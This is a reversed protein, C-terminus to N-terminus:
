DDVNNDKRVKAVAERGKRYFPPIVAFIAFCRWLNAFAHNNSGCDWHDDVLCCSECAQLNINHEGQYLFEL